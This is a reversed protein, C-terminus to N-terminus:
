ARSRQVRGPERHNSLQPRPQWDIADRWALYGVAMATLATIGAAIWAFSKWRRLRGAESDPRELAGGAIEQRLEELENRVDKASQYRRDPDKM